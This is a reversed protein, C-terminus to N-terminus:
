ASLSKRANQKLKGFKAIFPPMQSLITCEWQLARFDCFGIDCSISMYGSFRISSTLSEYHGLIGFIKCSILTVCIMWIGSIMLNTRITNKPQFFLIYFQPAVQHFDRTETKIGSTRNLPLSWLDRSKGSFGLNWKLRPLANLGFSWFQAIDDCQGFDNLSLVLTEFECFGWKLRSHVFHVLDHLFGRFLSFTLAQLTLM